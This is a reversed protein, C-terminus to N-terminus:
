DSAFSCHINKYYCLLVTSVTLFQLWVFSVRALYVQCRQWVFMVLMIKNGFQYGISTPTWFEPIIFNFEAETQLGGILKHATQGQCNSLGCETQYAIQIHVLCRTPQRALTTVTDLEIKLDPFLIILPKRRRNLWITSLKLTIFLM